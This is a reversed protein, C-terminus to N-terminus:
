SSSDAAWAERTKEYTTLPINAYLSGDAVGSRCHKIGYASAGANLDVWIAASAATSCINGQFRPNPNSGTYTYRVALDFAMNDSTQCYSPVIVFMNFPAGESAALVPGAQQVRYTAGKLRNPNNDTDNYPVLTGWATSNPWTDWAYSSSVDILCIMSGSACPSGTRIAVNNSGTAGTTCRGFISHAVTVAAGTDPWTEDNDYAEYYIKSSLASSVLFRFAKQFGSATAGEGYNYIRFSSM